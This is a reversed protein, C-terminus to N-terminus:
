SVMKPSPPPTGIVNMSIQLCQKPTIILWSPGKAWNDYRVPVVLGVGIL